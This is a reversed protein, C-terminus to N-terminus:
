FSSPTGGNRLSKRAEEEILDWIEKWLELFRASNRAEVDRPRGLDVLVEQKVRGPRGTMVIVRDGLLVAEEIAHTVYVVTKRYEQWIRLLEGQMILRTQADLSAFPEDMLLVEPDQVFARAIGVRQKMGGSLEHPYNRAFETLGVKEIFALAQRYRERKPVGRMELGFAVNDIVNMWPFVGHEQFVMASLPKGAAHNGEYIVEGSDPKQLGAIIRLLTTKGCGSPGVICLFEGENVTLNIGDLAEVSGSRTTFTHLIDTCKIQM